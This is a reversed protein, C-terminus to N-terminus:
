RLHYMIIIFLFAPPNSKGLESMVSGFRGGVGLNRGLLERVKSYRLLFNRRNRYQSLQTVRVEEIQRVTIQM